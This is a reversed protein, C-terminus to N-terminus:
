HGYVAIIDTMFTVVSPHLEEPFELDGWKEWVSRVVPGREWALIDQEFLKEGFPLFIVLM